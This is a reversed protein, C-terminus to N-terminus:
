PASWRGAVAPAQLSGAEEESEPPIKREARRGQKQRGAMRLLVGGKEGGLM